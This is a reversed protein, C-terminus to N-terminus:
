KFSKRPQSANTVELKDGFNDFNKKKTESRFFKTGKIMQLRWKAAPLELIELRVTGEFHELQSVFSANVVAEECCSFFFCLFGIITAEFSAFFYQLPFRKREREGNLVVIAQLEDPPPVWLHEKQWICYFFVDLVAVDMVLTMWHMSLDKKYQKMMLM